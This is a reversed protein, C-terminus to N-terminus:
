SRVGYPGFFMGRFDVRLLVLEALAAAELVGLLDLDLVGLRDLDLVGFFAVVGLLLLVGFLDVLFFVAAVEAVGLLRPLFGALLDTMGEKLNGFFGSLFIKLFTSAVITKTMAKM